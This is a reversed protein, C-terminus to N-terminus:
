EFRFTNSVFNNVKYLENLKWELVFTEVLELLCPILSRSGQLVYYSLYTGWNEYNSLVFNRYNQRCRLQTSHSKFTPTPNSYNSFIISSHPILVRSSSLQNAIRYLYNFVLSVCSKERKRKKNVKLSRESKRREVYVKVRRHCWSKECLSLVCSNERKRKCKKRFGEVKEWVKKKELHCYSVVVCFSSSTITVSSPFLHRVCM